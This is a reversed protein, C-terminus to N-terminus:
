EEEDEYEGLNDDEALDAEMEPLADNQAKEPLHDKDETVPVAKEFDELLLLAAQLEEKRASHKVLMFIFSFSANSNGMLQKLLM